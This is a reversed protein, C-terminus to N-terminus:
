RFNTILKNFETVRYLFGYIGIAMSGREENVQELFFYVLLCFLSLSFRDVGMRTTVWTMQSFFDGYHRFFLSEM